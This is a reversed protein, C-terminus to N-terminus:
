PFPTMEKEFCRGNRNKEFDGADVELKIKLKIHSLVAGKKYCFPGSGAIQYEEGVM